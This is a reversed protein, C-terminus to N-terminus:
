LDQCQLGTFARYLNVESVLLRKEVFKTEDDEVLVLNMAKMGANLIQLEEQISQSTLLIKLYM